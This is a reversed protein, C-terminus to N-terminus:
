KWFLVNWLLLWCPYLALAGAPFVLAGYLHHDLLGEAVAQLFLQWGELPALPAEQLERQAFVGLLLTVAPSSLLLLPALLLR